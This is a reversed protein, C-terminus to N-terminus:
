PVADYKQVIAAFHRLLETSDPTPRVETLLQEATQAQDALADRYYGIFHPIIREDFEPHFQIGWANDGRAFAQNPEMESCALLRAGPPLEMVSQTHSLQAHFHRPLFQFLPDGAAADTLRIAVTGVEIGRPNNAVKGGLAYALLQHGFCIGLVPIGADVAQHLWEASRVMWDEEDTVMAGSGTVAVGAVETLPPLTEDAAVDVVQVQSASMGMGERIWDEYDGATTDLTDIKRGTKLIVLQRQM